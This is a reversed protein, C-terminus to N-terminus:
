IKKGKSDLFPFGCAWLLLSFQAQSSCLYYVCAATRLLYYCLCNCHFIWYCSFHFVAPSFFIKLCQLCQNQRDALSTEPAPNSVMSTILHLKGHSKWDNTSQASAAKEEQEWVPSNEGGYINPSLLWHDWIGFCSKIILIYLCKGRDIFMQQHKRMMHSIHITCNAYAAQTLTEVAMVQSTATWHNRRSNWASLPYFELRFVHRSCPYKM